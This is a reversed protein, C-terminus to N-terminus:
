NGRYFAEIKPVIKDIDFNNEVHARAERVINEPQLSRIARALAQPDRPSILAGHLVERPGTGIVPIGSAMAELLVLGFPEEWSPVILIDIKEFFEPMSVFGIFEIPLRAAKKKLSAVYSDVGKGAILLRYGKGLERVAEVADDHGKHPSIQGALGIIVPKHLPHPRYPFKKLDVWNPIVVSKNPKLPKLTELIRETPAIWGDIRRYVISPRVPYLLHRTFVVKSGRIGLASFAVTIYDRGAHAHIIDFRERKLVSRLGLTNFPLDPNLPGGLRGAVLVDHGRKRLAAALELVHREGGGFNRESNVQLIRM